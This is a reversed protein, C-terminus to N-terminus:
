RFNSVKYRRYILEPISEKRTYTPMNKFTKELSRIELNNVKYFYNKTIERTRDSTTYLVLTVRHEGDQFSAKGNFRGIANWVPMMKGALSYAVYRKGNEEWWLETELMSGLIMVKERFVNEPIVDKLFDSKDYNRAITLNYLNPLYRNVYFNEFLNHAYSPDILLDDLFVPLTLNTGITTDTAVHLFGDDAHTLIIVYTLAYNNDNRTVLSKLFSGYHATQNGRHVLIPWLRDSVNWLAGYSGITWESYYAELHNGSFYFPREATKYSITNWSIAGCLMANIVFHTTIAWRLAYTSRIKAGNPLFNKDIRASADRRHRELSEETDGDYPITLPMNGISM